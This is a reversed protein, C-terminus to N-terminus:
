TLVVCSFQCVQSVKSTSEGRNKELFAKMEPTISIDTYPTHFSHTVCILARDPADDTLTVYLWGGVSGHSQAGKKSRPVEKRHANKRGRVSDATGQVTRLSIAM